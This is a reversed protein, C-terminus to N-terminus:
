RLRGGHLTSPCFAFSYKKEYPPNFKKCKLMSMCAGYELPNKLTACMMESDKLVNSRSLESLGYSSFGYQPHVPKVANYTTNRELKSGVPRDVPLVSADPSDPGYGVEPYLSKNFGTNCLLSANYGRETCDTSGFKKCSEVPDFSSKDNQVTTTPVTHTVSYDPVPQMSESVNEGSTVASSPLGLVGNSLLNSVSIRIYSGADASDSGKSTFIGLTKGTQSIVAAEEPTLSNSIKVGNPVRSNGIGPSEAIGPNTSEGTVLDILAAFEKNQAKILPDSYTSETRENSSTEAIVLSAVNLQDVLKDINDVLNLISVYSDASENVLHGSNKYPSVSYLLGFLNCYRILSSLRGGRVGDLIKGLPSTPSPRGLIEYLEVPTIGEMRDYMGSLDEHKANGASQEILKNWIPKQYEYGSNDPVVIQAVVGSLVDIDEKKKLITPIGRQVIQTISDFIDLDNKNLVSELLVLQNADVAYTLTILYGILRQYERSRIKSAASRNVNLFKLVRLLSSEADVGYLFDVYQDIATQGGFEYILKTLDYSRFFSIVDQSDTIPAFKTLLDNFDTISMIQQAEYDNFGLKKLRELIKDSQPEYSTLRLSGVYGGPKFGATRITKTFSQLLGAIGELKGSLVSIDPQKQLLAYLSNYASLLMKISGTLGSSRTSMDFSEPFIRALSEFHLTTDGIGEPPFNLIGKIGDGVKLCEVYVSELVLSIIDTRATQEAVYRDAIGNLYKSAVPNIPSDSQNASRTYYLNELFKLGHIKLETTRSGYIQEFNGFDGGLATNSLTRGYCMAMFYEYYKFQYEISDNISGGYGGFDLFYNYLNKIDAYIKRGEGSFTAVLLDENVEPLETNLKSDSIISNVDTAATKVVKARSEVNSKFVQAFPKRIRSRFLEPYSATRNSKLLRSKSPGLDIAVDAESYETITGLYEAISQRYLNIPDALLETLLAEYRRYKSVTLNDRIEEFEVEAYLKSWILGFLESAFAPGFGTTFLDIIVKNKLPTLTVVEGRDIRGTIELVLWKAFDYFKRKETEVSFYGYSDLGRTVIIGIRERVLETVQDV